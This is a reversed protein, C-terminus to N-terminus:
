GVVPVGAPNTVHAAIRPETWYNSHGNPEPSGNDVLCDNDIPPHPLATAIPDTVRWFNTWSDVNNRATEFFGRDFGAPFFTGYLSVLPSGCTVLHLPRVLRGHAALWACIVSGQSHGVLAVGETTRAQWETVAAAVGDGIRERYSAGALPHLRVPWFGMVDAVLGFANRILPSVRALVIGLLVALAGIHTVTTLVMLLVQHTGTPGWVRVFLFSWAGITVLGGLVLTAPLVTPLALVLRHSRDIQPEWWALLRRDRVLLVALGAVVAAGVAVVIMSLVVDLLFTTGNPNYVLILREGPPLTACGPFPEECPAQGLERYVTYRTPYILLWDVGLRVLSGVAHIWFVATVLAFAAGSGNAVTPRVPQAPGRALWWALAALLGIAGTSGVVTTAVLDFTHGAYAHCADFDRALTCAGPWLRSVPRSAPRWVLVLLVAGAVVAAHAVALPVVGSTRLRLARAVLGITVVAALGALLGATLGASPTGPLRKVVTEATAFLWITAAFTLILGALAVAASFAAGRRTSRMAGAVNVLTFPFALYWLFGAFRRSARSWNILVLRHPPLPPPGFQEVLLDPGPETIRVASGLASVNEHSGIGHVRIEVRGSQESM